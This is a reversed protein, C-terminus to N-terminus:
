RCSPCNMTVRGSGGCSDCDTKRYGKGSCIGCDDYGSGGCRGCELMGAGDCRYCTRYNSGSKRYGKGGCATCRNYGATGCAGCARVGYGGCNYCDTRIKGGDCSYCTSTVKGDGGCTSCSGSNKKKTTNKKTSNNGAKSGSQKTQTDAAAKNVGIEILDSRVYGKKGGSIQVHYWRTGGIMEEGLVNVADGNRIRAIVEASASATRRVNVANKVSYGPHPYGAQAAAAREESKKEAQSQEAGTQATRDLIYGEQGDGYRIHKWMVGDASVRELVDVQAGPALIEDATLAVEAASRVGATAVLVATEPKGDNQQQTHGDGSSVSPNTRVDLLDGRVFGKRGGQYEIEYWLTGNSQTESGLVIVEEHRALEGLLPASTSPKKRVNSKKLAWGAYPFDGAAAATEATQDQEAAAFCAALLMVLLLMLFGIRRM